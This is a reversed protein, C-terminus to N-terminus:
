SRCFIERRKRTGYMRMGIEWVVVGRGWGEGRGGELVLRSKVLVM